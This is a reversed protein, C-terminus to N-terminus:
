EGTPSSGGERRAGRATSFRDRRWRCRASPTGASPARCGPAATSACRSGSEMRSRTPIRTWRSRRGGRQARRSDRGGPSGAGRRWPCRRPPLALATRRASDRRLVRERDRRDGIPRRSREQSNRAPPPPHEGLATPSLRPDLADIGLRAVGPVDGSRQRDVGGPAQGHRARHDRPQRRGRPDRDSRASRSARAAREHTQRSAQDMWRPRSARGPAPTSRRSRHVERPPRLRRVGAGRARDGAPRVDQAGGGIARTMRAVMRGRLRTDFSRCLAEVEPLEPMASSLIRETGLLTAPGRATPGRRLRACPASSTRQTGREVMKGSPAQCPRIARPSSRTSRVTWAVESYLGRASISSSGSSCCIMGYQTTCWACSSM